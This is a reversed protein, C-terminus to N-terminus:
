LGGTAFSARIAEGLMHRARTAQPIVSAYYFFPHIQGPFDYVTVPVGAAELRKAYRSGDDYVPDCEALIFTAPAVGELDAAALPALRIDSPDANPAYHNLFWQSNAASHFCGEAYKRFSDTEPYDEVAGKKVRTAPYVLGQHRLGPAGKLALAVAAALNGGASDGAVAVRTVDTGLGASGDLLAKTVALCDDFAAPFRHEPALRYEVSVVVARASVCIDRCSTDALAIDGLVWGGGHFFAIVPLNEDAAPRYVRIPLPGAPGDVVTDVVEHVPTAHGTFAASADLAARSEAVTRQSFPPTKGVLEIFAKADPHLAM